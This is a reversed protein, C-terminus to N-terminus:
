ALSAIGRHPAQTAGVTPDDRHAGSEGAHQRGNRCVGGDTFSVLGGAARVGGTALMGRRAVVRDGSACVFMRRM